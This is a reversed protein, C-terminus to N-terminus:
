GGQGFLGALDIALGPLRLSTLHDGAAASLDVVKRYRDGELWYVQMVERFPDVIWYEPIDFQAYLRPKTVEDRYRSGTSLIEIVLDPPGHVGDEAIRDQHEQAVFLLDPQVVTTKSLVVDTPAFLVKGIPSTALFNFITAFLRGVLTQHTVTPAPTMLLEGELLECQPSDEPLLLFDDYTFPLSRLPEAM